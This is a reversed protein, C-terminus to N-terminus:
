GQVFGSNRVTWVVKNCYAGYQGLKVIISKKIIIPDCITIKLFCTM